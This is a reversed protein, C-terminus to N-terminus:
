HAVTGYIKDTPVASWLKANHKVTTKQLARGINCLFKKTQKTKRILHSSYKNIEPHLSIYLIYDAKQSVSLSITSALYRKINVPINLIFDSFIYQIKFVLESTFTFFTVTIIMGHRAPHRHWLSFYHM